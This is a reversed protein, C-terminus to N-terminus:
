FLEQVIEVVFKQRRKFKGCARCMGQAMLGKCNKHSKSRFTFSPYKVKHPLLSPVFSVPFHFSKLVDM